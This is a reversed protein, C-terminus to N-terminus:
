WSVYYNCICCSHFSEAPVIFQCSVWPCWRLTKNWEKEPLKYGPLNTQNWPDLRSLISYFLWPFKLWCHVSKMPVHFSFSCFKHLLMSLFQLLSCFACYGKDLLGTCFTSSRLPGPYLLGWLNFTIPTVAESDCLQVCMTQNPFLQHNM